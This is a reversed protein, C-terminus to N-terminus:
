QKKKLKSLYQEVQKTQVERPKTGDTSSILNHKTLYEVIQAARNYGIAFKRQINFSSCYESELLYKCVDGILEDEPHDDQSVQTGCMKELATVRKELARVAEQLEQALKDKPTTM